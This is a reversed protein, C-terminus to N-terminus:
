RRAAPVARARFAARAAKVTAYMPHSSNHDLNLPPKLAGIVSAEIDGPNDSESWSVGFHEAIWTTLEAEEDTELRVKGRGADLPTTLVAGLAALTFRVTSSRAKGAAHTVLRKRLDRKTKTTGVYYLFSDALPTGPIGLLEPETSWWAYLGPAKPAEVVRSPAVRRAPDCLREVAGAVSSNPTPSADYSM